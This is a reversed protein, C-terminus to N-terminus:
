ERIYVYEKSIRKGMAKFEILPVFPLYDANIGECAIIQGKRELIWKSLEDYNLGTKVYHVGMEKYPPDIFWTAKENNVDRYDLLSVKWHKIKHLNDIIYQRNAKWRSFHTTIYCTRISGPNVSFGMLLREAHSLWKIDRTDERDEPLPLKEIDKVTANLLYNWIEIVVPSTDYLSVEKKWREGHLSYAGSGCFPEIIKDYKPESYLHAIRKKRGYYYFM